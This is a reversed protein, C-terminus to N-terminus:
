SSENKKTIKKTDSVESTSLYFIISRNKKEICVPLSFIVLITSIYMRFESTSYECKFIENM